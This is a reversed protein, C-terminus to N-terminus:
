LPGHAGQHDSGEAEPRCTATREVTSTTPGTVCLSPSLSLVLSLSLSHDAAASKRKERCEDKVSPVESGM